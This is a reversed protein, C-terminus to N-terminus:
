IKTTPQGLGYKPSKRVKSKPSQFKLPMKRKDSNKGNEM